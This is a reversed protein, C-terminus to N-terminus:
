NLSSDFKWYTFNTTLLLFFYLIIMNNEGMQKVAYISDEVKGNSCYSGSWPIFQLITVMIFSFTLNWMGECGVMKFPHVYYTQLLKEEIIWHAASFFQSLLVLTIGIIINDSEGTKQISNIGVIVVGGVIWVLATWHHRHLRAKLFIIAMISTIFVLGGRIM